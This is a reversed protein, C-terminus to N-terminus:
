KRGQSGGCAYLPRREKIDEALGLIERQRRGKKQTRTYCSKSVYNM